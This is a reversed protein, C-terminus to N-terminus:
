VDRLVTVSIEESQQLRGVQFKWWCIQFIDQKTDKQKDPIIELNFYTM